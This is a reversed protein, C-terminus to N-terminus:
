NQNDSGALPQVYYTEGNYQFPVWGEPVKASCYDENEFRTMYGDCIKSGNKERWMGPPLEYEKLYKDLNPLQDDSVFPLVEISNEETNDAGTDAQCAALIHASVFLVATRTILTANGSYSKRAFTSFLM